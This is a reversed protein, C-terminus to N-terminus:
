KYPGWDIPVDIWYDTYLIKQMEKNKVIESIELLYKDVSEVLQKKVFFGKFYNYNEYDMAQNKLYEHLFFSRRVYDKNSIGSNIIEVPCARLEELKPNYGVWFNLAKYQSTRVIIDDYYEVSNLEPNVNQREFTGRDFDISCQSNLLLYERTKLELIKYFFEVEM